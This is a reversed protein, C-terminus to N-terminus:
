HPGAQRPELFDPLNLLSCVQTPAILSFAWRRQIKNKKRTRKHKQKIEKNELVTLEPIDELGRPLM